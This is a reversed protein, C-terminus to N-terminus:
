FVFIFSIDSSKRKLLTRRFNTSVNICCQISLTVHSDDYILHSKTVTEINGLSRCHLFLPEPLNFSVFQVTQILDHEAPTATQGNKLKLHIARLWLMSTTYYDYYEPLLVRGLQPNDTLIEAYSDLQKSPQHLHLRSPPTVQQKEYLYDMTSFHKTLLIQQECQHRNKQCPQHALYHRQFIQVPNQHRRLKLLHNYQM